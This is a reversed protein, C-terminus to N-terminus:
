GIGLGLRLHWKIPMVHINLVKRHVKAYWLITQVFYFFVKLSAQLTLRVWSIAPNSLNNHAGVAEYKLQWHDVTTGEREVCGCWVLEMGTRSGQVEEAEASGELFLVESYLELWHLGQYCSRSDCFSLCAMGLTWAFPVVGQCLVTTQCYM